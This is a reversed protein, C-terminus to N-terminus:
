ASTGVAEVAVTRRERASRYLAESAAIVRLGDLGSGNVPATGEVAAVFADVEADYASVEGTALTSPEDRGAHFTLEDGPFPSTGGRCALWGGEGFLVWDPRTGAHLQHSSLTALTGDDLRCTAAFVDEHGRGGARQRGGEGEDADTVDLQCTVEGIAHDTLFAILDIGHTGQHLMTGGGALRPDARWTHYPYLGKGAGVSIEALFVRGIRGSRVADRAALATAKHRLHFGVALTVDASAAADVMAQGDAVSLAMPKEVLVHKGAEVAALTHERHLANPSAIYVADVTPDDLMRGYDDYAARAEHREAFQRARGVDRSCVAALHSAPQKGIAPAIAIDALKGIGIIGWGLAM